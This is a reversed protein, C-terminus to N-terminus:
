TRGRFASSGFSDGRQSACCHRLLGCFRPRDTFTGTKQKRELHYELDNQKGTDECVNTVNNQDRFAPAFHQISIQATMQALHESIQGRLLFAPDLFPMKQGVM